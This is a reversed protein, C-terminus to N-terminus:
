DEWGCLSYGRSKASSLSINSVIKANKLGKCYKDFHYKTGSYGAIYVISGSKANNINTDTKLTNTTFSDFESETLGGTYKNFESPPIYMVRAYKEDLLWKNIDEGNLYVKALLRGYKDYNKTDDINLTVNKGLLKNSVITKVLQGKSTSLEPTDVGWLRVSTNIGSVKITDGDIVKTVVGSAENIESVSSTNNEQIPEYTTTSENSTNFNTTLGIGIFIALLIIIGSFILKNKL